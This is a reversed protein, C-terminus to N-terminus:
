QASPSSQRNHHSLSIHLQSVFVDVLQAKPVEAPVLFLAGDGRDGVQIRTWNVGAAEFSDQAIRYFAQRLYNQIVNDRQGFKEIDAVVITFYSPHSVVDRGRFDCRYTSVRSGNRTARQM